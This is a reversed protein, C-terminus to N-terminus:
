FSGYYKLNLNKFLDDVSPLQFKTVSTSGGGPGGGYISSGKINKMFTSDNPNQTSKQQLAVANKNRLALESNNKFAALQASRQMDAPSTNAVTKPGNSKTNSKGSSDLLKTVDTVTDLAGTIIGAVDTYTNAKTGAGVQRNNMFGRNYSSNMDLDSVSYQQTVSGPAETFMDGVMGGVKYGASINGGALYGVVSGLVRGGLGYLLNTGTSNGTKYAM